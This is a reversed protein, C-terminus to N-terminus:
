DEFPSLTIPDGWPNVRFANLFVPRDVEVEIRKEQDDYGPNIERIVNNVQILTRTGITWSKEGELAGTTGDFLRVTVLADGLGPNYVAFHSRESGSGDQEQRLGLFHYTTDAALRDGNTQGAILQGATGVVEGRNDRFIAFERGTAGLLTGNTTSLVVTGVDGSVGFLDRGLDAFGVTDGAAISLDETEAVGSVYRQFYFAKVAAVRDSYNTISASGSFENLGQISGIELLTVEESGGFSPLITTPDSTGTYNGSGDLVSAYTFGSGSLVEVEVVVDAMTGLGFTTHLNNIQNNGGKDLDYTIAAALGTGLPDVPTVRFRTGDAVAMLGINVRNHTPDETTNLYATQGATVADGVRMAPFFQGYKEGSDLRAFVVTQVMLDTAAGSTVTILVSGVRGASGSFGFLADLPDEITQLVGAPVTHNVTTVEGGSGDRPTFTMELEMPATGTNFLHMVSTFFAGAGRVRALAPVFTGAVPEAHSLIGLRQSGPGAAFGRILPDEILVLDTPGGMNRFSYSPLEKVNGSVDIEYAKDAFAFYTGDRAGAGTVGQFDSILTGPEITGIKIRHPVGLGDEICWTAHNFETQTMWNVSAKHCARVEDYSIDASTEGNAPGPNWLGVLEPVATQIQGVTLSGDEMGVTFIAEDIGGIGYSPLNGAKGIAVGLAPSEPNGGLDAATLTMWPDWRGSASRRFFEVTQDTFNLTKLYLGHATTFCTVSHYDDVATAEVPNTTWTGDTYDAVWVGINPGDGKMYPVVAHGPEPVCVKHVGYLFGSDLVGDEIVDAPGYPPDIRFANLYNAM